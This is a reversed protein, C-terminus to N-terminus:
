PTAEEDVKKLELVFGKAKVQAIIGVLAVPEGNAKIGDRNCDPTRFYSKNFISTFPHKYLSYAGRVWAWCVKDGQKLDCHPYTNRVVELM